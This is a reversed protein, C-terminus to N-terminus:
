KTKSDISDDENESSVADIKNKIRQWHENIKKEDIAKKRLSFPLKEEPDNNIPRKQKM